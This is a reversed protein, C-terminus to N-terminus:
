VWVWEGLRGACRREGTGGERSVSRVRLARAGVEGRLVPKQAMIPNYLNSNSNKSRITAKESTVVGNRKESTLFFNTHTEAAYRESAWTRETLPDLDGCHRKASAQRRTSAAADPQSAPSASVLPMNPM